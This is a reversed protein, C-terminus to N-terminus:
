HRLKIDLVVHPVSFQQEGFSYEYGILEDPGRPLREQGFPIAEEKFLSAAIAMLMFVLTNYGVLM